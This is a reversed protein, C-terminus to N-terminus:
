LFQKYFSLLAAFPRCSRKMKVLQGVLTLHPNGPGVPTPSEPFDPQPTDACWVYDTSPVVQKSNYENLQQQTQHLLFKHLKICCRICLTGASLAVKPLAHSTMKKQQVQKLRM